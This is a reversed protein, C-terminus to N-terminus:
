SSSQSSSSRKSVIAVFRKVRHADRCAPSRTCLRERRVRTAVSTRLVEKRDYERSHSITRGVTKHKGHKTTFVPSPRFFDTCKTKLLAEPGGRSLNRTSAGEPSILFIGRRPTGISLGSVLEPCCWPRSFGRGPAPRPLAGCSRRRDPLNPARPITSTMTGSEPWLLASGVKLGSRSIRSEPWSTGMGSEPWIPPSAALFTHGSRRIFTPDTCKRPWSTSIPPGRPLYMAGRFPPAHVRLSHCRCERLGLTLTGIWEGAYHEVPPRAPLVDADRARVQPPIRPTTLAVVRNRALHDRSDARRRADIGVVRVVTFQAV